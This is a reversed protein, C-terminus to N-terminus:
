SIAEEAFAKRLAKTEEAKEPLLNLRLFLDILVLNVNFKFDSTNRVTDIVQEAPWLEFAEVEGDTPKPVVGEPMELDYCHLRDRRLGEPRVTSYRVTGAHVARDITERSLGAEEAGEKQLTEEPGLGAPIGGAFLQDLKGPDMLRDASRRAVWINLGAPDAGARRVLGNVHVGEAAIGFWPLAGRDITALVDGGPHSRVDFDEGRHPFAGAGALRAAIAPLEAANSLVVADGDMRCGEAVLMRVGPRTVWGVQAPGLRFPLYGGPLTVNRVAEVHRMLGGM